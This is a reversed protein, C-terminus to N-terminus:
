RVRVRLRFTQEPLDAAPPFSGLALRTSGRARGRYRFTTVATGGACGPGCSGGSSRQPLRRLIATSPARVTHWSYGCSYCVELSIRVEQGQRITVTRGSDGEDLKLPRPAAAGAQAPLALALLLLLSTRM